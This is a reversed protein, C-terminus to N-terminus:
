RGTTFTLSWPKLPQKDLAIMGELFEVKVQQFRELPSAFTIEVAHNADNYRVTFEPVPPLGGAPPNVYTIRIRDRVSRPDMDRSFQIRIPASRDVDTDDPVPASFIVEPSPAPPPPPLEVEVTPETQETSLTVASAEIYPGSAALKVVGTVELWKGTDARRGPDLDFGKGRPRIGSVWLVGDGSQLVFEWKDKGLANPLEGYLNRGKFRGIVRVERDVYEQPALAIARLTPRTSPNARMASAGVLVFIQDRAPWRGQNVAELLGAFDYQAFRSDGQEIRGVDWFEGRVEEGSTGQRARWFVFIPKSTNALRPYAGEEQVPQRLVVGRGHFFRASAILAEATTALRSEQARVPAPAFLAALVVAARLLKM